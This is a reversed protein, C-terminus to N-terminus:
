WLYNEFLNKGPFQQSYRNESVGFLPSIRSLGEMLSKFMWETFYVDGGKAAVEFSQAYTTMDVFVPSIPRTGIYFILFAPILINASRNFGGKHGGGMYILVTFFVLVLM